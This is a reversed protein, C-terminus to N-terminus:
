LRRTTIIAHDDFWCSICCRQNIGCLAQMIGRNGSLQCSISRSLGVLHWAALGSERLHGQLHEGQHQLDEHEITRWSRLPICRQHGPHLSRHWAEVLLQSSREQHWKRHEVRITQAAILFSSDPTSTMLRNESAMWTSDTVAHLPHQTFKQHLWPHRLHAPISTPKRIGTVMQADEPHYEISSPLAEYEEKMIHIWILDKSMARLNQSSKKIPGRLRRMTSTWIKQCIWSSITWSPHSQLRHRLWSSRRSWRKYKISVLPSRVNSAIIEFHSVVFSICILEKLSIASMQRSTKELFTIDFWFVCYNINMCISSTVSTQVVCIGQHGAWHHGRLFLFRHPYLYRYLEVYNDMSTTCICSTHTHPSVKYHLRSTSRLTKFFVLHRISNLIAASAQTRGHSLWIQRIDTHQSTHKNCVYQHYQHYRSYSPKLSHQHRHQLHAM